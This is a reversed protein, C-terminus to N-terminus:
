KLLFQKWHETEAVKAMVIAGRRKQWQATRKKKNFSIEEPEDADSEGTEKLQKM